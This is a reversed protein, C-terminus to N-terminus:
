TCSSACTGRWWWQGSTLNTFVGRRQEHGDLAHRRLKAAGGDSCSHRVDLNVLDEFIVGIKVQGHAVDHGNLGAQLACGAPLPPREHHVVLPYHKDPRRENSDVADVRLGSTPQIQRRPRDLSVDRFFCEAIQFTGIELCVNARAVNELRPYSVHRTELKGTGSGNGGDGRVKGGLCSRLRSCIIAM